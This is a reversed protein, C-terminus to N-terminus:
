VAFFRIRSKRHLKFRPSTKAQESRVPDTLVVVKIRHSTQHIGSPPVTGDIALVDGVGQGISIAACLQATDASRGGLTLMKRLTKLTCSLIEAGESLRWESNAGAPAASLSSPCQQESNEM